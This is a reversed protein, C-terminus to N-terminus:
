APAAVIGIEIQLQPTALRAEVTARAPPSAKSVWEDWVENMLGIHRIDALWVTASLIHHKDSGGQALFGDIRELVQRVQTRVDPSPDPATVGSLFVLQGYKVVRSIRPKENIVLREIDSMEHSEMSPPSALHRRAVLGVEIVKDPAALCNGVLSLTPPARSGIWENWQALVAERERIDAIWITAALLDDRSSGIDHLMASLRELVARAQVAHSPTGGPPESGSLFLSALDGYGTVRCLRPSVDQRVIPTVSTPRANLM